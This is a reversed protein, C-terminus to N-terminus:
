NIYEEIRQRGHNKHFGYVKEADKRATVADQRDIFTGLHINKGKITIAARWRNKAYRVGLCGSKSDSRLSKNKGNVESSVVRLNKIRNDARDGNIHDIQGEPWKGYHFAWIVRHALYKKGFIRIQIYGASNPAANLTQTNADRGNFANMDWTSKFMELPRKKWFYKEGTEDFHILQRLLEPTINPLKM